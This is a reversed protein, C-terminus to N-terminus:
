RPETGGCKTAVQERLHARAEQAAGVLRNALVLVKPVNLVKGTDADSVRGDRLNVVLGPETYRGGCAPTVSVEEPVYGEGLILSCNQRRAVEAITPVSLAISLADQDSLFPPTRLAILKGLLDGVRASMVETGSRHDRVHGTRPDVYLAARTEGPRTASKHIVHFITEPVGTVASPEVDVSGNVDTWGPLARAAELALCRCEALALIRSRAQNVLEHALVDSAHDGVSLPNDGWTAVAGTRRNVVYRDLLSSAFSTRCAAHVEVDFTAPHM